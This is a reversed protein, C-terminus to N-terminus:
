TTALAAAEANAAAVLTNMQDRFRGFVHEKMEAVAEAPLAEDTAFTFPMAAHSVIRTGTGSPILYDTYKLGIEPTLAGVVTVYDATRMDLVTFVSANGEGHACHYESGPGIRGGIHNVVDSGDAQMWHARKVPNVLQDWVLGPPAETFVTNSGWADRQLVKDVSQSRVYDWIDPLSSVYGAVEGVFEYEETHPTWGAIVGQLELDDVCAQTVLMYDDIGTAERIQNKLLRHATIVDPGTITERGGIETVVYEGCHMVIKLGLGVINACANCDCTTNITMTELARAFSCYLLEVSELVTQGHIGEPMVGYMFVADGEISSVTLPAQIAGIVANLLDGIIGNAHELESETLFRTYGSIDAIVLHGHMTTSDVLAPEQRGPSKM